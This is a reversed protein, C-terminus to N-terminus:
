VAEIEPYEPQWMADRVARDLNDGLKERALGEQIATRAVAVAVAASTERLDEVLPLLAAGPQSVNVLDAVSAAAAALMGDSIHSARAVITGLGLGPFLLANNVQGIVHTVHNYTVPDFPSGTAVLVRGETWHILDAPTAEALPTPNSLPLIIPRQTHAAMERVIPESFAGGVTSTGILMTPHVRRVVEALDIGGGPGTRAWGNVDNASRAYPMQFDRLTSASDQTLLGPRDVCWFHRSAEESSLGDRIMAARLQDANGIGATGAGFIVIRQERLPVGSVRVASLTAALTISGTGQMDDNFTCVEDRYKEIIRRANAPGFDEWHLVARPYLRTATEVYADVFADYREDRVRQHRNGLYLPDDLLSQRDTGVDLMLPIVRHPDIGAAATYVVLKGISIAIGGVGWDGIGLIQEADTAVILDVDDAGAGFNHFAAEIAEPQDISLYVGRPRRYDQSYREIATGVTPTYVIPLMERLHQSVLRYFLVENRDHLATLAIHKSVDDPQRQYQAYARRSQDALSLVASPLLGTLSLQERQEATFATGRNLLPTTLVDLGRARVQLVPRGPGRGVSFPRERLGLQIM